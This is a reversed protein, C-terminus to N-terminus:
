LPEKKEREKRKIFLLLLFCFCTLVTFFFAKLFRHSHQDSNKTRIRRM